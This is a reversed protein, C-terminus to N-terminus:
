KVAFLHCIKAYKEYIRSLVFEQYARYIADLRHFSLREPKLTRRRSFYFLPSATARM